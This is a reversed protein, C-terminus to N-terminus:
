VYSPVFLPFIENTKTKSYTGSAIHVTIPHLSDAEATFLAHDITRLAQSSSLGSNSDSGTPSVYLDAKQPTIIAQNMAINIKEDPFVHNDKPNNVTFTDLVVDIPDTKFNAIDGGDQFAKNLYISSLLENCFTLKAVGYYNDELYLGGGKFQSVNKRITASKLELKSGSAFIGGGGWGAFNQQIMVDHVKIESAFCSIGGGDYESINGEIVSKQIVAESNESLYLGGGSCQDFITDSRNKSIKCKTLVLQSKRAYIGGGRGGGFSIVNNNYLDTNTLDGESDYLFLGGGGRAARNKRMVVDSMKIVSQRGMVAGGSHSYNNEIVCDNLQLFADICGIGGGNYGNNNKIICNVMKVKSSDKCLLGGSSENSYNTSNQKLAVNFFKPFSKNGCYVGGGLYFDHGKTENKYVNLHNFIPSSGNTCVIGAATNSLEPTGEIFGNTITFGSLVTTSDEGNEFTVVTGQKYGDIVTKSIYSTDGTTIFLSGLVINKGNFNINEYYTGPSVLVTDGHEANNIGQQITEYDAPINLTKTQSSHSLLFIASIIVVFRMAGDKLFLYLIIKQV